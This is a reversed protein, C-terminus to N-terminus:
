PADVFALRLMEPKPEVRAAPELRGDSRIHAVPVGRRLLEQAILHHRHCRNPDEESCMMATPGRAALELLRDVGAQFRPQRAVASYDVLKLYDAHGEPVRGRKYLGPDDPRGGLKEGGFAYGIGATKLTRRLNEQNFHPAFRSYPSTRVDVVTVIGHRGLLALFSAEDLNSHGISFVAFPPM